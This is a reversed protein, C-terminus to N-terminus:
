RADAYRFRPTYTTGDDLSTAPKSKRGRDRMEDDCYECWDEPAVSLSMTYGCRLPASCLTEGEVTRHWKRDPGKNKAYLM